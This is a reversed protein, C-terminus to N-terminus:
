GWDWVGLGIIEFVWLYPVTKLKGTLVHGTVAGFGFMRHLSEPFCM